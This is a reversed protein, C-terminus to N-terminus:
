RAKKKKDSKKKEQRTAIRQELNYTQAKLLFVLLHAYLSSLRVDEEEDCMSQFHDIFKLFRSIGNRFDFMKMKSLLEVYFQEWVYVLTPTKPRNMLHYRFDRLLLNGSNLYSQRFVMAPRIQGNTSWRLELLTMADYSDIESMGTFYSVEDYLDITDIIQERTLSPFVQGINDPVDDDLHDAEESVHSDEDDSNKDIDNLRQELEDSKQAVLVLAVETKESDGVPESLGRAPSKPVQLPYKRRSDM